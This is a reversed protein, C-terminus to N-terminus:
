SRSFFESRTLTKKHVLEMDSVSSRMFSLLDPWLYLENKCLTYETFHRQRQYKVSRPIFYKVVIHLGDM